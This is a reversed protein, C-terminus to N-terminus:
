LWRRFCWVAGLGALLLVGVHPEPVASALIAVDPRTEYAWDLIVGGAEFSPADIRVWGYHMGDAAAFHVGM